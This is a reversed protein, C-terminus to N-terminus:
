VATYLPPLELVRDEVRSPLRLGSDEHRLVEIFHTDNQLPPTQESSAAPINAVADTGEEGRAVKGTTHIPHSIIPVVNLAPRKQPLAPPSTEFPEVTTLPSAIDLTGYPDIFPKKRARKLFILLLLIVAVGGVSGGVAKGVLGNLKGTSNPSKGTPTICSSDNGTHVFFPSSLSNYGLADMTANVIYWGQTINVSSWQFSSSVPDVDMAMPVTVVAVPHSGTPVIRATPSTRSPTSESSSTLAPAPDDQSVGANTAILNLPSVAGSYFWTITVPQCTIAQPVAQFFLIQPIAQFFLISTPTSISSKTPSATGLFM